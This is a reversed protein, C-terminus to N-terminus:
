SNYLVPKGAHKTQQAHQVPQAQQSKNHSQDLQEYTYRMCSRDTTCALMLRFKRYKRIAVAMQPATGGNAADMVHALVLLNAAMM